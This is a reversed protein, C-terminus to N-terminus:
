NSSCTLKNYQAKHTLLEFYNTSIIHDIKWNTAARDANTGTMIIVKDNPQVANSLPLSQKVQHAGFDAEDVILFRNKQISFLYNIKDQRRSGNNLSLYVFVKKGKSYASEIQEQYGPDASDIHAYDRFQEFRILDSAFSTFVTQVYSAVIVLEADCEVAISSSWITKGFRACLEALITRKGLSFANCADVANHYQATSLSASVLPQDYDALFKCIKMFMDKQPILHVEGSNGKRYGIINRIDDDVKKKNNFMGRQKAYGSVDWIQYGRLEIERFKDKRVGLSDRIRKGCDIYPDLGAKVWRQGFKCEYDDESWLYVFMRDESHIM